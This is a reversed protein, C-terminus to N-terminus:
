RDLPPYDNEAGLPPTCLYLRGAESDATWAALATALRLIARQETVGAANPLLWRDALWELRLGALVPWGDQRQRWILDSDPAM